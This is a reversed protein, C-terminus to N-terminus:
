ASLATLPSASLWAELAPHPAPEPRRVPEQLRLRDAPVVAVVTRTGWYYRETWEVEAVWGRADEWLQWSWQLAPSWTGDREVEVARPPDYVREQVLQVTREIV